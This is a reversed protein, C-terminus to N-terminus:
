DSCVEEGMRIKNKIDILKNKNVRKACNTCHLEMRNEPIKLRQFIEEYFGSDEGDMVNGIIQRGNCCIAIDGNPLVCPEFSDETCNAHSRPSQLICEYYNKKARGIEMVENNRMKGRNDHEIQVNTWDRLEDELRKVSHKQFPQHYIDDSIMITLNDFPVSYQLDIFKKFLSTKEGKPTLIWSGNTPIRVNGVWRRGLLQTIQYMIDKHLFSEGGCLNTYETDFMDLTKDFIQIPMSGKKNPGCEFICHACKFNCRWTNIIQMM